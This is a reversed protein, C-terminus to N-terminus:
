KTRYVVRVGTKTLQESHQRLEKTLLPDVPQSSNSEIKTSANVIGVFAVVVLLLIYTWAPLNAFLTAAGFILDQNTM